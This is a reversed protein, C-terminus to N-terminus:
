LNYVDITLAGGRLKALIEVEDEDRKRAVALAAEAADASLIIVGDADGVVLDGKRVIVEGIRVPEGVAGDGAPNKGTGRIAVEGAFTPLGLEVLRRSDRVGGTIALGAARRALAATAMIEGWYGFGGGEAGCDVVLVDGPASIALAKHIWLNDGAPCRVPLARGHVSMAPDLPKIRSPLAGARKAAEHLTASSVGAAAAVLPDEHLLV